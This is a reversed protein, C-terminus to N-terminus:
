PDAKEVDFERKFMSTAATGTSYWRYAWHGPKGTTDMDVYYVGTSEKQVNGGGYALETVSGNGVRYRFFVNTPDIVAGANTKFTATIRPVQGEYYSM